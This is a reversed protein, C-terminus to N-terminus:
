SGTVAWTGVTRTSSATSTSDTRLYGGFRSVPVGCTASTPNCLVTNATGVNSGEYVCLFGPAAQPNSVTGPCSSPATSGTPVFVSNPESALTYGFSISESAQRGAAVPDFRIAYSGRVTRGRPLAGGPLLATSDIGDVKDANLNAVKVSSTVGMPPRSSSTVLSLATAGPSTNTNVLQLTPNVINATLKTLATASNSTVGMILPQGNAALAPTATALTLAVMVTLLTAKGRGWAWLFVGKLVKTARMM